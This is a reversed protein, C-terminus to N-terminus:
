RGHTTTIQEPSLRFSSMALRGSRPSRELEDATRTVSCFSGDPPM